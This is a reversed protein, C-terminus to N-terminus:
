KIEGFVRALPDDVYPKSFVPTIGVVSIGSLLRASSYDVCASSVLSITNREHTLYDTTPFEASECRSGSSGSVLFGCKKCGIYAVVKALESLLREHLAHDAVIDNMTASPKARTPSRPLISYTIRRM